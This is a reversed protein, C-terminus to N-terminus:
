DENGATKQRFILQDFCDYFAYRDVTYEKSTFVVEEIKKCGAFAYSGLRSLKGPLVLKGSLEGCTEFARERIIALESPLKLEGQLQPLGHFACEGIERINDNFVIKTIKEKDPNNVFANPPIVEVDDDFYLVGDEIRYKEFNKLEIKTDTFAGAGIKIQRDKLDLKGLLQYCNAFAYKDICELGEPLKLVTMMFECGVFASEGIRKLSKPFDLNGELYTCGCFAWAGISELGESFIVTELNSMYKAFGADIRSKTCGLVEEPQYFVAHPEYDEIKLRIYAIMDASSKDYEGETGLIELDEYGVKNKKFDCYATIKWNESVAQILAKVM